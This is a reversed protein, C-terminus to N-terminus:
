MKCGIKSTARQTRVRDEERLGRTTQTKGYHDCQFDRQRVEKLKNKKNHAKTVDIIQRRNWAHLAAEAEEYSDFVQEPLPDIAFRYPAPPITPPSVM